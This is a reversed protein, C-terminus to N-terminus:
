IRRTGDMISKAITPDLCVYRSGTRDYFWVPDSSDSFGERMYRSKTQKFTGTSDLAQTCLRVFLPRAYSPLRGSLEPLLGDMRFDHDTVIAAMGAQGEYGPVRVPYVTADAVGPCMRLSATVEAASVNEGKWRFNEGIRGIFYFFGETDQRLLDGTRFWCDGASLVNSLLKQETAGADTYGDFQRTPFTSSRQIKGIAEGPEGPKCVICLGAEGRLPTADDDAIRILKIPFRQKLFPPIRGIAGQRGECNYLSVNGETAAYFELIRAIDFRAQFRSWVDQQLGNGCALRLRHARELSHPPALCLYRCLEGIYQVITCDQAVVEDWFASASFGPRVFISGGSVLMAGVASIGGTSHYMPLCDYLCDDPSAEMMGSFWLGWELIRGHTIHAAKPFGTTGSTYVLLARDSPIPPPRPIEIAPASAPALDIRPWPVSDSEGHLWITRVGLRNLDDEIDAVAASLDYSVILHSAHAIDICHRLADGTLNTNLLAAVCGARGLGLWIPVYDLCNPLLLGVVSGAEVDHQIAWFAYDAIRRNLAAYSLQGEASKLAVRSPGAEGASKELLALLTLTPDETMVALSKIARFWPEWRSRAVRSGDPHHSSSTSDELIPENM